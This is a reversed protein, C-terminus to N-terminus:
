TDRSKGTTATADLRSEQKGTNVICDWGEDVRVPGGLETSLAIELADGM